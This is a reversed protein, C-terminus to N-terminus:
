QRMTEGLWPLLDLHTDVCKKKNGRKLKEFCQISYIVPSKSPKFIDTFTILIQTGM